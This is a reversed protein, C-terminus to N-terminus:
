RRRITRFGEKLLMLEYPEEPLFVYLIIHIEKVWNVLQEIWKRVEFVKEEPPEQIFIFFYNNNGSIIHEEIQVCIRSITNIHPNEDSSIDTTSICFVNASSTLINAEEPLLQMDSSTLEIVRYYTRIFTTQYISKPLVFEYIVHYDFDLDTSYKINEIWMQVRDDWEKPPEQVFLFSYENDKSIIHNNIRQAIVPFEYNLIHEESIYFITASKTLFVM